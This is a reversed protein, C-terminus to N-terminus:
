FVWENGKFYKWPQFLFYNDLIEIYVYVNITSTIIVIEELGEFSIYDIM